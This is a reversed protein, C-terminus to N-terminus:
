LPTNESFHRTLSTLDARPLLQIDQLNLGGIGAPSLYCFYCFLFNQICLCLLACAHM